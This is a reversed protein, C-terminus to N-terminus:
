NAWVTYAFLSAPVNRSTDQGMREIEVVLYLDVESDSEIGVSSDYTRGYTNMRYLGDSNTSFSGTYIAVLDSSSWADEEMLEITGTRETSYIFSEPLGVSTRYFYIGVDGSYPEDYSTDIVIVDFETASGTQMTESYHMESEYNASALMIESDTIIPERSASVSFSCTVAMIVAMTVMLMSKLKKNKM